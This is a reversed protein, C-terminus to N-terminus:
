FGRWTREDPGSVQGRQRMERNKVRMRSKFLLHTPEIHLPDAIQEVPMQSNSMNELLDAGRGQSTSSYDRLLLMSLGQHHAPCVGIGNVSRDARGNCGPYQCPFEWIKCVVRNHAKQLFKVSPYMRKGIPHHLLFDLLIFRGIM